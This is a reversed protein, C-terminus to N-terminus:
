ARRKKALSLENSEIRLQKVLSLAEEQTSVVVPTRGGWGEITEVEGATLARKSTPQDPNKIEVRQDIGYIGLIGDLENPLQYTEMWTGGLSEFVKVLEGHNADRNARQRIKQTRAM